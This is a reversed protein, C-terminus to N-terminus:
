HLVYRVGGEMKITFDDFIVPIFKQFKNLLLCAIERIQPHAAQSGRQRIFHRWQRLNYTVILETKLATPLVDRAVETSIGKKLMKQYTVSAVRMATLWLDVASPPLGIPMVVPLRKTYQVYRTSEQSYSGIRHRVIQHSVGRSCIIKATVNVHEIVSEHGSKMIRKVFGEASDKTIKDESKYCVRGCRELFKLVGIGDIPTLIEVSPM